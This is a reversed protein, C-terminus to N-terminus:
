RSMYVIYKCDVTDDSMENCSDSFYTMKYLM